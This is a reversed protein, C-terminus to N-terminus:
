ACSRSISRGSPSTTRTTIGPQAHAPAEGSRRPSPRRAQGQLEDLGGADVQIPSLRDIVFPFVSGKIVNEPQYSVEVQAWCGGLLLRPYRTVLEDPITADPVRLQVLKAWYRDERSSLRVKVKDILKYKSRERVLSQIHPAQESRVFHQTLIRQVERLGAAIM